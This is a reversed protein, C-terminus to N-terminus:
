NTVLTFDEALWEGDDYTPSRSRGRRAEYSLRERDWEAWNRDRGYTDWDRSQDPPYSQDPLASRGYVGRSPSRDREGRPPPSHSDAWTSM